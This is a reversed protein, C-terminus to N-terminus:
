RLTTARFTAMPPSTPDPSSAPAPLDPSGPVLDRSSFINNIMTGRSPDHHSPHTIFGSGLPLVPSMGFNAAM